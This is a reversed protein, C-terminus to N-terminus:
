TILNNYVAPCCRFASLPMLYWSWQTAPQLINCKSCVVLKWPHRLSRSMIVLQIKRFPRLSIYTPPQLPGKVCYLYPANFKLEHIIYNVWKLPWRSINNMITPTFFLSLSSTSSFHQLLGLPTAFSSIKKDHILIQCNHTMKYFSQMISIMFTM